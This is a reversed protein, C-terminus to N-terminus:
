AAGSPLPPEEFSLREDLGTLRFVDHVVAPASVILLRGGQARLARDIGILIHLGSSSMFGVQSLDLLLTRTGAAIAQGMERELVGATALDVEGTVSVTTKTGCTDTRVRFAQVFPVDLVRSFAM